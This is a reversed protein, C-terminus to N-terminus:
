RGCCGSDARVTFAACIRDARNIHSRRNSHGSTSRHDPFSRRHPSTRRGPLMGARACFSPQVADLVINPVHQALIDTKAPPLVISTRGRGEAQGRVSRGTARAAARM